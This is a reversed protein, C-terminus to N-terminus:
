KGLPSNKRIQDDAIQGLSLLERLRNGQYGWRLRNCSACAPLCNEVDKSGGKSKQNVHDINWSGIEGRLDYKEFVVSDGCFHCVGRTKDFIAKLNAERNM